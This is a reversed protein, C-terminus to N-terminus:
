IVYGGGAADLMAGTILSADDSLLFLIAAAVEHPLGVRQMPITAEIGARYTADKLRGETM